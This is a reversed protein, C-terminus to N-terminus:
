FGMNGAFISPIETFFVFFEPCFDFFSLYFHGFSLNGAKELALLIRVLTSFFFGTYVCLRRLTRQRFLCSKKWNAANSMFAQHMHHICRLSTGDM